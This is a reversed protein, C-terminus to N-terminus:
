RDDDLFDGDAGHKPEGYDEREPVVWARAGARDPWRVYATSVTTMAVLTAKEGVLQM